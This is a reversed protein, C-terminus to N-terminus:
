KNIGYKRNFKEVRGARVVSGQEGTFFPHCKDCVELRLEPTNSKVEFQNGCACTVVTKVYNPHIGKKMSFRRGGHSQTMTIEQEIIIDIKKSNLM